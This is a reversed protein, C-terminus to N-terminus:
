GVGIRSLIQFVAVAIAWAFILQATIGIGAWKWGFERRQAGVTAVCPTYATLFVLFALVASNPNGGSSEEFDARLASGLKQQNFSQAQDTLAYNQAWSAIVVEKAVFGTILAGSTHWDGFGAPAFVPTIASSVAGYASDKVPTSAFSGDGTVPVSMLVWVVLVTTVVLGGAEQLFGKVRLWADQFVYKSTPLRYPPLEILLPERM